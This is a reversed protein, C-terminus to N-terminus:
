SSFRCGLPLPKAHELLTFGDMRPLGLDSLMAHYQRAGLRTLAEPASPCSEAILYSLRSTLFAPLARGLTPDDDVILLRPKASSSSPDTAAM